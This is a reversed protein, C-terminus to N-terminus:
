LLFAWSLLLPACLLVPPLIFHSACPPASWLPAHTSSHCDLSALSEQAIEHLEERWHRAAELARMWQHMEDASDAQLRGAGM